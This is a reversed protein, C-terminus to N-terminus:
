MNGKPIEENTPIAEAAAALIVGNGNQLIEDAEEKEAGRSDIELDTLYLTVLHRHFVIIPLGDGGGDPSSGLFFSIMDKELNGM